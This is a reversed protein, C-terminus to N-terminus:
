KLKNILNQKERKLEQLDEDILRWMVHGKKFRSRELAKQFCKEELKDILPQLHYNHVKKLHEENVNDWWSLKEFEEMLQM